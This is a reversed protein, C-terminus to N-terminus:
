YDMPIFFIPNEMTRGTKLEYQHIIEERTLNGALHTPSFQLGKMEDPDSPNVRYSLSTGLDMLSDGLTAMEWDLINSVQTWNDPNLILNDYKFNNHILSIHCTTVQHENM